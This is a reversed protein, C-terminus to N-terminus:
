AFVFDQPLEEDLDTNMGKTLVEARRFLEESLPKMLEPNHTIDHDLLDLFAHATISQKSLMVEEEREFRNDHERHPSQLKKDMCKRKQEEVSKTDSEDSSFGSGKGQKEKTLFTKKGRVKSVSYSSHKLQKRLKVKM